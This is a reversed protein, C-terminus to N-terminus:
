LTNTNSQIQINYKQDAIIFYVTIPECTQSNFKDYGNYSVDTTM